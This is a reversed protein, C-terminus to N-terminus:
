KQSKEGRSARVDSGEGYKVSNKFQVVIVFGYPRQIVDIPTVHEHTKLSKKAEACGIRLLQTLDPKDSRVVVAKLM